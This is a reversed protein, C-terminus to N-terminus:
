MPPLLSQNSANKATEKPLFLIRRRIRQRPKENRLKINRGSHTRWNKIEPPVLLKSATLAELLRVKARAKGQTPPLGYHILLATYWHGVEDKSPISKGKSKTLDPRLLAGIEAISARKHRNLNGVEVYLDGNYHFGDRSIPPAFSM